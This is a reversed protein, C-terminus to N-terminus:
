KVRKATCSVARGLSSGMKGTILYRQLGAFPFHDALYGQRADNLGTAGPTRVLCHKETKLDSSVWALQIFELPAGAPNYVTFSFYGPKIPEQAYLFGGNDADRLPPVMLTDSSGDGWQMEWMQGPAFIPDAAQRGPVLSAMPM